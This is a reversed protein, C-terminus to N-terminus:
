CTSSNCNRTAFKSSLFSGKWQVCPRKFKRWSWIFFKKKPFVLKSTWSSGLETNSHLTISLLSSSFQITIYLRFSKFSWPNLLVQFDHWWRSQVLSIGKSEMKKWNEPRQSSVRLNRELLGVLHVSLHHCLFLLFYLISYCPTWLLSESELISITM